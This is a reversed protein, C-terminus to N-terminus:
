SLYALVIPLNERIYAEAIQKQRREHCQSDFMATVHKLLALCVFCKEASESGMKIFDAISTSWCTNSTKLALLSISMCLRDM